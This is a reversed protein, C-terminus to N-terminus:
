RLRGGPVIITGDGLRSSAKTAINYEFTVGQDDVILVTNPLGSWGVIRKASGAGDGLDVMAPFSEGISRVMLSEGGSIYSLGGGTLPWIPHTESPAADSPQNMVYRRDAALEYFFIVRKESGVKELVEFAM